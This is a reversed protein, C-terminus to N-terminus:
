KACTHNQSSNSGQCGYLQLVTLSLGNNQGYAAGPVPICQAAYGCMHALATSMLAVFSAHLKVLTGTRGHGGWCHIYLKEGARVRDCCDDALRSIAGDTTISGDIIALHLFNLKSQTIRANGFERAKTLIRQAYKIYPRLFSRWLMLSVTSISLCTSSSILLFCAALAAQIM